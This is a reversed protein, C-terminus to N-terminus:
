ADSKIQLLKLIKRSLVQNAAVIFSTTATAKLELKLDNGDPTLITAGAEKIILYAAALDTARIKNRLDVYADIRGSAVYCLELAVSGLQRLKKMNSILPMLRTIQYLMEKKQMNVPIKVSFIGEQLDNVSSPKLPHGEEYAGKGTEASFSTGNSLNMVLGVDVTNLQSNSAHAISISAFPIGRVANTTGDIGDLIVYDVPNQGILKRGCEESVLICSVEEEEFFNIVVEEALQDIRRTADGGAGKGVIQMAQTSGFLSNVENYVEKSIAQFLMLWDVMKKIEM